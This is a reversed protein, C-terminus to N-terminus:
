RPTRRPGPPTCTGRPHLPATPVPRDPTRPSTDPKGPGVTRTPVLSSPSSARRRPWGDSSPSCLSSRTSVRGGGPRPGRRSWVARRSRRRAAGGSAGRGGDREAASAADEAGGTRGISSNQQASGVHMAMPEREPCRQGVGRGAPKATRAPGARGRRHARERFEAQEDAALDPQARVHAREPAESRRGHAAIAVREERRTWSVSGEESPAAQRM